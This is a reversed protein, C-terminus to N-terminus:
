QAPTCGTEGTTLTACAQTTAGAQVAVMSTYANVAAAEVAAAEAKGESPTIRVEDGAAAQTIRAWAAGCTQSHRVEILATGVTVSSVTKAFSGGCGMAEPDQGSCDDGACKVGAPLVPSSSSPSPSPSKAAPAPAADGGIDALLVAGVIVLLAGVVAGAFVIAKRRPRRPAPGPGPGTPIGAG